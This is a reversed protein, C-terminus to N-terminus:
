QGSSTIVDNRALSIGRLDPRPDDPSAAAHRAAVRTRRRKMPRNPAVVDRVALSRRRVTPGRRRGPRVSQNAGRGSPAAVPRTEAPTSQTGALRHQQPPGPQAGFVVPARVLRFRQFWFFRRFYLACDTVCAVRTGYRDRGQRM